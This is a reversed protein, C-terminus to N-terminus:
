FIKFISGWPSGFMIIERTFSVARTKGADQLLSSQLYSQAPLSSSTPSGRRQRQGTRQPQPQDGHAARRAFGLSRETVRRGQDGWLGQLGRGRLYKREKQKMEGATRHCPLPRVDLCLLNRPVGSPFEPCSLNVPPKDDGAGRRRPSGPSEQFDGLWVCTWGQKAESIQRPRGLWPLKPPPFSPLPPSIFASLPFLAAEGGEARGGGPEVM